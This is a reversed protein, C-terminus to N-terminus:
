REKAYGCYFALDPSALSVSRSGESRYYYTIFTWRLSWCVDGVLYSTEVGVGVRFLVWMVLLLVEFWLVIFM